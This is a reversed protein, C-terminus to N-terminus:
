KLYEGRDSRPGGAKEGGRDGNIPKDHWFEWERKGWHWSAFSLRTDSVRVVGFSWQDHKTSGVNYVDIGEWQYRGSAHYHGHFIAVVNYGFLVRALDARYRGDGFWNKTSYPGRLAFHLYIVVPRDKGVSALDAELSALGGEDPAEGLCIVRLDDWDFAYRTGGHRERIRDLTHWSHHKDHNGHGEFVPFRLRGDGGKHGYWAVFHRWQWPVGDETLDGAILVGRPTGVAGGIEPPLAKGPMSNMDDIQRANLRDSDAPENVPDRLAGNAGHEKAAFGVHTDAAVLFTVDLGGRRRTSAPPESAMAGPEAALAPRSPGARTAFVWVAAGLGVTLAVALAIRRPPPRM